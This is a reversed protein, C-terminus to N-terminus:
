PSSNDYMGCPAPEQRQFWGAGCDHIRIWARSIAAGVFGCRGGPCDNFGNVPDDDWPYTGYYLFEAHHGNCPPCVAPGPCRWCDVPPLPKTGPLPAPAVPEAAMAPSCVLLLVYCIALGGLDFRPM